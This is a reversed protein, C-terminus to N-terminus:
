VSKTMWKCFQRHEFKIFEEAEKDVDEEKAAERTGMKESMARRMDVYEFVKVPEEAAYSVRYEKVSDRHHHQHHHHHSKHNSSNGLVM